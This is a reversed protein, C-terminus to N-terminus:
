VVLGAVAIAGGSNSVTDLDAIMGYTIMYDLRSGGNAGMITQTITSDRSALGIASNKGSINNWYTFVKRVQDKTLPVRYQPCTDLVLIESMRKLTLDQIEVKDLLLFKESQGISPILFVEVVYEQDKRHVAGYDKLYDNPLLITKNLTNFQFESTVFDEESFSALPSISDLTNNAIELCRFNNTNDTNLLPDSKINRNTYFKYSYTDLIEQKTVTQSHSEWIGDNRLLWMRGNEPKTHVYVGIQRGGLDRGNNNSILYKLSVNFRHEPVLFNTTIPRDDISYKSLDFRIRPLGTTSRQKIFVRDFMYPDDTYSMASSDIKIISFSNSDTTASTHVLEVCQIISSSVKEYTDVYMSSAASATIDFTSDSWRLLNVDGLSSTIVSSDNGLIYFDHNYLIPGFTHSFVNPGDLYQIHEALQHREFENTYARYFKHFDRGFSFNYFDSVANPFWGSAETAQNALSQYVNSVSLVYDTASGYFASAQYWKADEQIEHMVEYIPALQGRSNNATMMGPEVTGRCRLTNSVDYGYFSNPSSITQCRSYVGSANVYDDIDAFSLSSPIFGLPIGSLSSTMYYSTPMNFGTRDFYGNFPMIKEYSRRRLTSRQLNGLLTESTVVPSAQSWLDNRGFPTGGTEVSRKYSGIVLGSSQVNRLYIGQEPDVKDLAVLPLASSDTNTEDLSSLSLRILPISHAPSFENIIKSAVIIADRSNIDDSNVKSFDFESADFLLKFHSSKGNWLSAYEFKTDTLNSILRDLNPPSSYGSTFFLWEQSVNNLDSDITNEKVYDIFQLAFDNRVGFCVLRDAIFNIVDETLESNVYYPYEEFPPIPYSRGRYNYSDYPFNFYGPFQLAVEYIIRDTALKCNTDMSSNSYGVVQMSNALTPTWSQFSKFYDSETALSYYILYPIYSEWLETLRSEISFLDKPFISNLAFQISSKTGVKKYVEVANRLQLRWREPNSGFLNWGILDAVLPLYEDPCEDIDYLSGLLETDDNIDFAIFSLAKLLKTFPGASEKNETKLSTDYFLEFRNRVTFDAMNSRLTSYIVDMWTKLNDLQQTGSVFEGSGSAFVSSPYYPMSNKWIYESLGKMCDELYITKGTFTKEVLIDKVFSSPNYVSGSTNLFYLWSLNQILYIHMASADDSGNFSSTPSNLRIAPLLTDELYTSFEGSTDFDSFKSDLRKLIKTEFRETTVKTLENQKVFYPAIGAFTDMASFITGDISSIPLATAIDNAFDIHSNIVQDSLDVQTGSASRDDDFLYNPLIVQLAEHYNRKFFPQTNLYNNGVM